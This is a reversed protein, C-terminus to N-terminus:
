AGGLERFSNIVDHLTPEAETKRSPLTWAVVQYFGNRGEIMTYWFVVRLGSVKGAVEYQVAPLGGIQLTRREGVNAEAIAMNAEELCSEEFGSFDDFDSSDASVVLIYQEQRLNGLQIVAVENRFSEPVDRWSEPVTLQSKRDSATVVRSQGPDVSSGSASGDSSGDPRSEAIAGWIAGGLLAAGALGLGIWLLPRRKRPPPPPPLPPPVPQYAPQYEGPQFSM